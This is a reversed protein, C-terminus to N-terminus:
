NVRFGFESAMRNWATTAERSYGPPNWSAPHTLKVAWFRGCDVMGRRKIKSIYDFSKTGLCVVARLNPTQERHMVWALVGLCYGQVYQCELIRGSYKQGPKLIGIRASGALKRCCIGHALKYFNDTTRAGDKTQEKFNTASFPDPHNGIYKEMGEVSAADQLLLLMDCDWDGFEWEKDEHGYCDVMRETAFLKREDELGPLEYVNKSHLCWPHQNPCDSPRFRRIWSPLTPTRRV